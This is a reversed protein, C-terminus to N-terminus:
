DIQTFTAKVTFPVPGTFQSMDTNSFNDYTDTIKGAGAENPNILTTNLVSAPDLKIELTFSKDGGFPALNGLKDVIVKKGAVTTIPATEGEAVVVKAALVDAKFELEVGCCIAVESANKVTIVYDGTMDSALSAPGTASELSVSLKAVRAADSGSVRNTYKAYLGTTFHASILCLCLLVGAIQLFLGPRKQKNM